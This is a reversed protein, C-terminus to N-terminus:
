LPQVALDNSVPICLPHVQDTTVDAPLSPEAGEKVPHFIAQIAPGFHIVDGPALTHHKIRRGNVFVGNVSPKFQNDIDGDYITYTYDQYDPLAVRVLYAHNRSVFTNAICITNDLRRGVTCLHNELVVARTGRPEQILLVYKLIQPDRRQRSRNLKSSPSDM